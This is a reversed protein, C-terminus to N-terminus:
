IVQRVLMFAEAAPRHVTSGRLMALARITALSREHPFDRQQSGYLSM